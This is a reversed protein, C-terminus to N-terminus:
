DLYLDVIADHIGVYGDAQPENYGFEDDIGELM